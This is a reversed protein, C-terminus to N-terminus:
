DSIFSSLLVIKLIPDIGPAENMKVLLGGIIEAADKQVNADSTINDLQTLAERAFTSQLLDYNGKNREANNSTITYKKPSSILATVFELQNANSVRGGDDITPKSTLYYWNDREDIWPFLDRQAIMKLFGETTKFTNNDIPKM